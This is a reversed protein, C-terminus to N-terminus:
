GPTPLLSALGERQCMKALAQRPNDSVLLLCTSQPHSDGATLAQTTATLVPPHLPVTCKGEAQTSTRRCSFGKRKRAQPLGHLKLTSSLNPHPNFAKM